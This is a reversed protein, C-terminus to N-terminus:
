RTELRVEAESRRLYLPVALVPDCFAGRRLDEHGLEAVSAASPLALSMPAFQAHEGLAQRILEKYLIAGSGLFLAPPTLQRLMAEPSSVSDPSLREVRGDRFQFSGWYVEKKKADLMPVVPVPAFPVRAALAALTPVAILPKEAGLCLGKATALGIRLGTFSGPGISVAIADIKDLSVRAEKLVRDVMMLLRESHTMEVNLRYEAVIGEEAAIAVGGSLTATEIALLQM